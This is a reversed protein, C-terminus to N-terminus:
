NMPKAILDKRKYAKKVNSYYVTQSSVETTKFQKKYRSMFSRYVGYKFYVKKATM